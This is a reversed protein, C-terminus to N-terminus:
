RKTSRAARISAIAVSIAVFGVLGAALADAWNWGFWRAAATGFLTVGAQLAGLGSLHGDSLLAPSGVRKALSQKRLSLFVLAVLSIAALATGANSSGSKTEAILRFAGVLVAAIGVLFLGVIVVNHAIQELRESVVDHRLTHRFHYVLAASGLADVFGIAGFACLVASESAVGLGIAITSACVTWGVSQLSVLWAARVDAREPSGVQDATPIPHM